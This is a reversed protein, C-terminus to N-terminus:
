AMVVITNAWLDHICRRDQRFIFLVDVLNIINLFPVAGFLQFLLYRIGYIRAIPPIEETDNDVIRIGTLMKGITQGRTTLLFINLAFFILLGLMSGLIQESAAIGGPNDFSFWGFAFLLPFQIVLLALTDLLAAGLRRWRSALPAGGEAIQEDIFPQDASPPAYPNEENM